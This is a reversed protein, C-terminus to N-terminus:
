ELTLLSNDVTSCDLVAINGVEEEMAATGYPQFEGKPKSVFTRQIDLLGFVALDWYMIM